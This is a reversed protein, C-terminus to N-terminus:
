IRRKDLHGNEKTQPSTMEAPPESAHPRMRMVVLAQLAPTPFRTEQGWDAKAKNIM